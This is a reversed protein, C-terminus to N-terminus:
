FTSIIQTKLTHSYVDTDVHRLESSASSRRFSSNCITTFWQTSPISDPYQPLNHEQSGLWRGVPIRKNVQRVNM